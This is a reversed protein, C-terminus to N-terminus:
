FKNKKFQAKHTKLQEAPRSCKQKRQSHISGESRLHSEPICESTMIPSFFLDEKNATM